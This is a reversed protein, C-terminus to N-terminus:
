FFLALKAQIRHEEMLQEGNTSRNVAIPVSIGFHSRKAFKVKIGPVLYQNHFGTSDNKEGDVETKGQNRGFFELQVDFAKSLAYSGSVNYRLCNGGKTDQEGETKHTYMTHSDIRFRDFVKSLGLEVKPDWSGTGSQLFVPYRKGNDARASTSGTPMKVGAGVALFVPAGAKQSLVQYRGMAVMDGFGSNSDDMYVHKVGNPSNKASHRDLEKSFHSLVLRVDFRPMVGYRFTTQVKTVKKRTAGNIESSDYNKKDNDSYYDDAKFSEFKTIVGLKGPSYVMGTSGYLPGVPKIMEASVSSFAMVFMVALLSLIRM